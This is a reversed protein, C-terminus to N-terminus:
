DAMVAARPNAALARALTLRHIKANHRVDVPFRRVFFFARIGRTHPCQKGLGRLRAAFAARDELTRPWAEPAPEVALAPVQAGPEGLGLLATRFVGEARNFVAECNDTYLTGEPTRVREAVRGCFWLRGTDDLYGADGMRHWFSGGQDAIKTRATAEPLGDYRATVSPGQVIIEGIQGPPLTQTDQLHSIPGDIIPIIAVRVGESLHGVCTGEGAETRRWTQSLVEEGTIVAVPLAETAGYPTQVCANPAVQALQRLIHPPVPAGASLVRRLQTLVIGNTQCYGCVRAWLVPSGFAMTAANQVLARVLKSADAKAPRSPNMQPVITTSGLSPNFLSFVPLMPFDREGPLFGFGERLQRMQETFVAHTYCVGKPAGTSGSTFLIAALDQAACPATEVPGAEGARDAQEVFKGGVRLRARTRSFAKRFIKSLACALPIGALVEPGTREVCKLFSRPGMGPDIVVPVAGLRFLAYVLAMLAEGPRVMVLVRTGKGVGLGTLMRAAGAARRSLQAYDVVRYRVTGDKNEGVPVRLAEAQPRLRAQENFFRAINHNPPSEM